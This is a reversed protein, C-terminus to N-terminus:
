PHETEHPIIVDVDFSSAEERGGLEAGADVAALLRMMIVVDLLAYEAAHSPTEQARTRTLRYRQHSRVSRAELASTAPRTLRFWRRRRPRRARHTAPSRRWRGCPAPSRTPTSSSHTRASSWCQRRRRSGCQRRAGAVRGPSAGRRCAGAPHGMGGGQPRRQVHHRRHMGGRADIAKGRLLESAVDADIMTPRGGRQVGASGHAVAADAAPRANVGASSARLATRQLRM